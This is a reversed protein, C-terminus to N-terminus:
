KSHFKGLTGKVEFDTLKLSGRHAHPQEDELHRAAPRPSAPSTRVDVVMADGLDASRSARRSSAEPLLTRSVTTHPPMDHHGHSHGSYRPETDVIIGSDEDDSNGPSIPPTIPGDSAMFGSDRRDSMNFPSARDQEVPNPLSSSRFAPFSSHDM